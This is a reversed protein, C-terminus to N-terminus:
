HDEVKRFMRCSTARFKEWNRAPEREVRGLSSTLCNGRWETPRGVMATQNALQGLKTSKPRLKCKLREEQVGVAM